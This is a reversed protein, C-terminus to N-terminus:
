SRRYTGDFSLGTACIKEGFDTEIRFARNGMPKLSFHIGQLDTADVEMM